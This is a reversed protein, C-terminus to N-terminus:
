GPESPCSGSECHQETRCSLASPHQAVRPSVHEWIGSNGSASLLFSCVNRPCSCYVLTKSSTGGLCVMLHPNVYLSKHVFSEWPFWTLSLPCCSLFPLSGSFPAVEPLARCHSAGVQDWRAEFHPLNCRLTQGSQPLSASSEEPRNTM